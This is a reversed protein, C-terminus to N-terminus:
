KRYRRIIRIPHLNDNVYSENIKEITKFTLSKDAMEENMIQSIVTNADDIPYETEMQSVKIPIKKNELKECYIHLHISKNKKDLLVITEAKSTDITGIVKYPIM